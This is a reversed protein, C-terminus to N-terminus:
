PFGAELVGHGLSCRAGCWRDSADIPIAVLELTTRAASTATVNAQAGSASAALARSAVEHAPWAVLATAIRALCRSALAAHSFTQIVWHGLVRLTRAPKRAGDDAVITTPILEEATPLARATAVDTRTCAALAAPVLLTMVEHAALAGPAALVDAHSASAVSASDPLEPSWVM